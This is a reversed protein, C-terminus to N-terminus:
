RLITVNGKREVQANNILLYKIVYYYTGDPLAKGKYTGDWDNRYDASEFVRSGYRNYVQVNARILCNGDTIFWVDNYGDKNPTFANKPNTCNPIVTITVNSTAFCGQSNTIRLTYTTTSAPKAVPNLINTASLGAAPTWSYTGSSGSGQLIVSSGELISSGPGANATVGPLVSVTFSKSNLCNGLRAVLTYQTTATPSVVPNAITSSSLGTAPTRYILDRQERHQCQILGRQLDHHRCAGDPHRRNARDRYLHPQHYLDPPEPLPTRPPPHQLYFPVPSPRTVLGTTPSWGYTAANSTINANFSAGNCISTDSRNSMSLNNTLTITVPVVTTCNNGDLITARYNGPALNTATLGTQVPVTNWTVSVAHDCGHTGATASGTSSCSANTINATVNQTNSIGSLAFFISNPYFTRQQRGHDRQHFETKCRKKNKLM